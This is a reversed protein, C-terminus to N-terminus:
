DKKIMLEVFKELKKLEEINIEIEDISNDYCGTIYYEVKKGSIVALLNNKKIEYEESNLIKTIEFEKAMSLLELKENM